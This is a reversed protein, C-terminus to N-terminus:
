YPSWRSRCEKGVRREESREHETRPFERDNGAPDLVQGDGLLFCVDNQELGLGGQVGSVNPILAGDGVEIPELSMAGTVSGSPVRSGFSQSASRANPCRISSSM